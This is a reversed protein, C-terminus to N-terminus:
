CHGCPGLFDRAEKVMDLLVRGCTEKEGELERLGDQLSAAKQIQSQLSEIRVELNSLRDKSIQESGIDRM